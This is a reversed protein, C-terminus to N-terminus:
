HLEVEVIHEKVKGVRKVFYHDRYIQDILTKNNLHWWWRNTPISKSCNFDYVKAIHACTNKANRLLKIDYFYLDRKEGQSLKQYNEALIDRLDLMNLSEYPSVLLNTVSLGFNNVDQRLNREVECETLENLFDDFNNKSKKLM